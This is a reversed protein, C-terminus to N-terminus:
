DDGEDGSSSSSSQDEGGDSSSSSSSSSDSSSFTGVLDWAPPGFDEEPLGELAQEMYDRWMPAAYTSGYVTRRVGKIREDSLSTATEDPHGVWATTALQPTYGSFWTQVMKNTTGTKGAAPRGDPRGVREATGRTFVNELAYTVTNAIQESTHDDSALPQTCSEVTPQIPQGDRDVVSEIPRPPCYTGGSAFTAYAAAMTLPAVPDSGLVNAPNVGLRGDQSAPVSEPSAPHAGLSEGTARIDCLDLETAMSAYATNVSDYTAQLVTMRGTGTGESNRVEWDDVLRNGCARFDSAPFVTRRPAATVSERLTNDEKLWTALTFPKWNSGPQFGRGGGLDEDVNYNINTYGREDTPATTYIRNQAMARVKGTGPEVSVLTAGVQSSDDVPVTDQVQQWAAYQRGSELTTTVDIGGRYLARVRADRDEGFAPDQLITQVVYDCFYATAGAPACGNAPKDIRLQDAIPVAVAADHQAQDIKGLELMRGLVVDRRDQADQPNTTPEYFSPNQIMGALLAADPLALESAPKSFYYESAAEVGYTNAGFLAINLYNELIQDKSYEEEAAIALRIERVKRAENPTTLATVADEDGAERAQQLLVNKIWQQTLTSAGQTGGGTVNNVFARAIGQPDAGGHEYFRSDEIAVVADSMVPAVADLPVIVRNEAYFGTMPSGDAYRITSRVPLASPDLQTPLDEFMDVAADAGAGATAVVPVALGAVLLGAVVGGGVLTALGTGVSGASGAATARASRTRRPPRADPTERPADAGPPSSPRGAM